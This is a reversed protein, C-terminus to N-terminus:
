EAVLTGHRQRHFDDFFDYRGPRLGSVYVTASRGPPVVRERNLAFSEFEIPQQTRNSVEIRVKAGAPVRLEPPDFGREVVVLHVTVETAVAPAAGLLCLGAVALTLQFRM